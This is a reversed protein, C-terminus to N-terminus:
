KSFAALSLKNFNRAQLNEITPVANFCKCKVQVKPTDSHAAVIPFDLHQTKLACDEAFEPLTLEINTCNM